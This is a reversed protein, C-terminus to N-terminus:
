YIWAGEGKHYDVCGKYEGPIPIYRLAKTAGPESSFYGWLTLQNLMEFIHTDKEAKSQKSEEDLTVMWKTKEDKSLSSFAKGFKQNVEQKFKGMGSVFSREEDDTYCESVILKMFEGIKADKAGPSESTAPIITEGIDDLLSIMEDNFFTINEGPSKPTCGTLFADAGIITVGLLAMTSTLAERRNM